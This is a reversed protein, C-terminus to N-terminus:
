KKIKDEHCFTKGYKKIPCATIEPYSMIIKIKIRTYFLDIVIYIRTQFFLSKLFLFPFSNIKRDRNDNAPSGGNRPNKLFIIIRKKKILFEKYINDRNRTTDETEKIKRYELTKRFEKIIWTRKLLTGM